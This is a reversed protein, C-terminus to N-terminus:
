PMHRTRRILAPADEDADVVRTDPMSGRLPKTPEVAIQTRDISEILRHPALLRAADTQQQWTAQQVQRVQRNAAMVAHTLELRQQRLFLLTAAVAVLVLTTVLLKAFM